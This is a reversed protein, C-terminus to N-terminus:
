LLNITEKLERDNGFGQFIRIEKDLLDVEYLFEIDGHLGTSLGWGTMTNKSYINVWFEDNNRKAQKLKEKREEEEKRTFARMIQAIAYEPDNGREKIFQISIEKLTPLVDSEYGDNHKYILVDSGMVKIHARTSM